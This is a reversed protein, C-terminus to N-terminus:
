SVDGSDHSGADDNAVDLIGGQLKTAVADGSHSYIALTVSSTCPYACAPLRFLTGTFTVQLYLAVRVGIGSIDTIQTFFDKCTEFPM